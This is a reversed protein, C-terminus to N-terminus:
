SWCQCERGYLDHPDKLTQMFLGHLGCIPAPHQLRKSANLNGGHAPASVM